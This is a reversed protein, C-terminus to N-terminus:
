MKHLNKDCLLLCPSLCLSLTILQLSSSLFFLGSSHSAFNSTLNSQGYFPSSTNDVEGRRFEKQFAFVMVEVCLIYVKLHVCVCVCFVTLVNVCSIALFFFFFFVVVGFSFYCLFKFVVLKLLIFNSILKQM